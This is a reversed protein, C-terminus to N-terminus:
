DGGGNNTITALPGNCLIRIYSLFKKGFDFKALAAYLANREVKDFAKKFDVSLIISSNQTQDCYEMLNMLKMINDGITHGKVFGSQTYDVLTTVATQVRM